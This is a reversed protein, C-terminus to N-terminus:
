VIRKTPLTLHTYSVPRQDPRAGGSRQLPPHLCQLVHELLCYEFINLLELCNLLIAACSEVSYCVSLIHKELLCTQLLVLNWQLSEQVSASGLARLGRHFVSLLKWPHDRQPPPPPTDDVLPSFSSATRWPSRLVSTQEDTIM